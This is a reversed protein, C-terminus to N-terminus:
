KGGKYGMEKVLKTSAKNVADLIKGRIVGEDESVARFIIRGKQKRGAGIKGFDGVAGQIAQTFHAGANKNNSQSDKSGSLGSKRGATEIIQASASRNILSFMSAWNSGRQKKRGLSYSIGKRAVMANYHPFPRTRSTRSKANESQPKLWSSLGVITNPLFQQATKQLKKMEPRIERNMEKYITPDIKRLAKLTNDLGKIAHAM